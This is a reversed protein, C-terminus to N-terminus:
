ISKVEPQNAALMALLENAALDIESATNEFAPLIKRVIAATRKLDDCHSQIAILLGEPVAASAQPRTYVNVREYYMPHSPFKCGYQGLLGNNDGVLLLTWRDPRKFSPQPEDGGVADKVAAEAVARLGALHQHAPLGSSEAMPYEAWLKEGSLM